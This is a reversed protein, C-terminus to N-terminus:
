EIGNKKVGNVSAARGRNTKPSEKFDPFLSRWDHKGYEQASDDARTRGAAIVGARAPTLRASPVMRLARRSAAMLAMCSRWHGAADRNRGKKVMLRQAESTEVVLRCHHVMAPIDLASFHGAPYGGFEGAWAELEPRTLGPPAVVLAPLPLNRLGSM